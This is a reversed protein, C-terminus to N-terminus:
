CHSKNFTQVRCIRAVLTAHSDPGLKLPQSLAGLRRDQSGRRDPRIHRNRGVRNRCSYLITARLQTSIYWEYANLINSTVSDTDFYLSLILLLRLCLYVCVCVCVFVSASEPVFFIKKKCVYGFHFILCVCLFCLRIILPRIM